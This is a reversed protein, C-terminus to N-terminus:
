FWSVKTLVLQFVSFITKLFVGAIGDNVKQHVKGIELVSDDGNKIMESASQAFVSVPFLLLLLLIKRM